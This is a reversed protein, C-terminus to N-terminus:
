RQAPGLLFGSDVAVLQGTVVRSDLLWVIAHAVDENTAATHLPAIKEFRAKHDDYHGPGLHAEVWRGEVFGPCVANVRVEPALSRALSITLTNLAAKSCAYALSSGTANLGAASSVNVIAGGAARLHPAAARAMQFAGVTNIAFMTMFDAASLGDLDPHPVFKTVGASNVLADIGAFRALTEAVLRRCDADDAVDAQVTIATASAARCAAAVAEADDAGRRYNIALDWGRAALAKATAAGMGSSGGTILALKRAPPM